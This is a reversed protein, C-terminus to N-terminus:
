VTSGGNPCHRGMIGGKDLLERAAEKKIDNVVLEYGAELVHRSMHRGMAGIGIFGVKM